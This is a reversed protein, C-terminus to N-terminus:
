WVENRGTTTPYSQITRGVAECGNVFGRIMENAANNNFRHQREYIIVMWNPFEAPRYMRKDIRRIRVDDRTMPLGYIFPGVLEM